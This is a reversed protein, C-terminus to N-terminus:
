LIPESVMNANPATQGKRQTVVAKLLTVDRLNLPALRMMGGPHHVLVRRAEAKIESAKRDSVSGRERMTEM